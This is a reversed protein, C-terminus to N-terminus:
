GYPGVWSFAEENSVIMTGGVHLQGMFDLESYFDGSYTRAKVATIAVEFSPTSYELYTATSGFLESETGDSCKWQLSQLYNSYGVEVEDLFENDNCEFTTKEAHTATDPLGAITSVYESSCDAGGVETICVFVELIVVGLAVLGLRPSSFRMNTNYYIKETWIQATPNRTFADPTNSALGPNM